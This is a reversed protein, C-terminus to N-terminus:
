FLIKNLLIFILGLIYFSYIIRYRKYKNVSPLLVFCSIYVMIGALLSYIIGLTFYNPTFFLYAFLAGLPEFISCIFTYLIAKRKNKSSYYIPLAVSIGEPINHMIISFTVAFGLNLDNSTTIFTVIGEPINHIGLCLMTIFGIKNLNNDSPFIKNFSFSLIIGLTFIILAIILSISHNYNFSFLSISYPLLDLISLFFMISLAFSMGCILFNLTKNKNTFIFLCGIMTSFGAVLSYIFGTLNM